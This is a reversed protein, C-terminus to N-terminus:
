LFHRSTIQKTYIYHESWLLYVQTEHGPGIVLGRGRNTLLGSDNDSWVLDAYPGWFPGIIFQVSLLLKGRYRSGFTILLIIPVKILPSFNLEKNIEKGKKRM